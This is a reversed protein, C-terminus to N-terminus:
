REIENKKVKKAANEKKPVSEVKCKQVLSKKSTGSTTSKQRTPLKVSKEHRLEMKEIEGLSKNLNEDEIIIEETNSNSISIKIANFNEKLFKLFLNEKVM